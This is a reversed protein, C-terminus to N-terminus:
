LKRYKTISKFYESVEPVYWEKFDAKHSPIRKQLMLFYMSITINFAAGVVLNADKVFRIQVIAPTKDEMLQVRGQIINTAHTTGSFSRYYAEYLTQKGLYNALNEINEPGDFLEFWNPNKKKSKGSGKIRKYEALAISYIPLSLLYEVDKIHDDIKDIQPVQMGNKDLKSKFNAHEETGPKLKKYLKLENIYHWVLFGLARNNTDKELIYELGLYSELLSRVIIKAPDISGEKILISIADLQELFNRFMLVIPLNEDKGTAEQLDWNLIHTGFNVLEEVGSSYDSLIRKTDENEILRNLIDLIPKTKKM